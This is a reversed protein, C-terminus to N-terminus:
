EVDWNHIEQQTKDIYFRQTDFVKTKELAPREDYYENTVKDHWMEEIDDYEYRDANDTETTYQNLDQLAKNADALKQLGEEDYTIKEKEAPEEEVESQETEVGEDVEEDIYENNENEVPTDTEYVEQSENNLEEDM